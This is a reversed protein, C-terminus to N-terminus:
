SRGDCGVDLPQRLSLSLLMTCVFIVFSVFIDPVFSVLVDAVTGVQDDQLLHTVMRMDLLLQLPTLSLLLWMTSHGVEEDTEAMMMMM